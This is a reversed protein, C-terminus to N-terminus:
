GRAMIIGLPCTYFVKVCSKFPFSPFWKVFEAGDCWDRINSFRRKSGWPDMISPCKDCCAIVAGPIIIIM